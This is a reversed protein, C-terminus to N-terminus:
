QCHDRPWKVLQRVDIKSKKLEKLVDEVTARDPHQSRLVVYVYPKNPETPCYKLIAYRDYDVAIVYARVSMLSPEQYIEDWYGTSNWNTANGRFTIHRQKSISYADATILSINGEPRAYISIPCDLDNDLDNPTHLRWYWPRTGSFKYWDFNNVDQNGIDCESPVLTLKAILGLFIILLM